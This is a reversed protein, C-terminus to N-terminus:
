EGKINKLPFLIEAGYKTRVMAHKPGYYYCFIGHYDANGYTAVVPQGPSLKM